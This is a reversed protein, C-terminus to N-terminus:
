GRSPPDGRIQELREYDQWRVGHLRVFHDERSTDDHPLPAASAM